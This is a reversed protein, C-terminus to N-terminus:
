LAVPRTRQHFWARLLRSEWKVEHHEDSWGGVIHGWMLLWDDYNLLNIPSIGNSQEWVVYWVCMLFLYLFVSGWVREKRYAWCPMDRDKKTLGKWSWWASIFYVLVGISHLKRFMLATMSLFHLFLVHFHYLPYVAFVCVDVTSCSVKLNM